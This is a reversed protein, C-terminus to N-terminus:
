GSQRWRQRVARHGHRSRAGLQLPDAADAKSRAKSKPAISKDLVVAERPMGNLEYNIVRRGEKDPAGVNILKIFLV